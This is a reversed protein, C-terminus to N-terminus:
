AMCADQLLPFRTRHGARSSVALAHNLPVVLSRNRGAMGLLAERMAEIDSAALRGDDYEM